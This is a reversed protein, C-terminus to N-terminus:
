GDTKRLMQRVYPLLNQVIVVVGKENPHIADDQNLEPVAAVDELFFPMLTVDHKRALAPFVRNFEGSYEAGLNPPAMMGALLVRTGARKAAGIMADLNEFTAKPDLGRLGDNAGLEIVVVDPKESLAWQLRSRGGASTDGSVGANIIRANIGQEKLAAELRVPISQDHSLGLGATLSDGIMLVTQGQGASLSSAFTMLALTLTVNVLTRLLGYQWLSCRKRRKERVKWITM